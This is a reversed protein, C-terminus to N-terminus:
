VRLNELLREEDILAQYQDALERHVAAAAPDRSSAIAAEEQALRRRFFSLNDERVSGRGQRGISWMVFARVPSM